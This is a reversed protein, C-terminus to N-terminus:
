ENEWVLESLTDNLMQSTNEFATAFEESIDAWIDMSKDIDPNQMVLEVDASSWIDVLLLTDDAYHHKLEDLLQKKTLIHPM